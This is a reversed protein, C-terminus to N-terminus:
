DDRVPRDRRCVMCSGQDCVQVTPTFTPTFDVKRRWTQRPTVSRSIGPVDRYVFRGGVKIVEQTHYWLRGGLAPDTPLDDAATNDLAASSSPTGQAALTTDPAASASAPAPAPLTAAPQAAPPGGAPANNDARIRGPIMNIAMLGQNRSLGLQNISAQIRQLLHQRMQAQEQTYPGPLRFEDRCVDDNWMLSRTPKVGGPQHRKGNKHGGYEDRVKEASLRLGFVDNFIAGRDIWSSEPYHTAMIHLCHRHALTWQHSM